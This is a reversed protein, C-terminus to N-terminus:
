FLEDFNILKEDKKESSCLPRHCLYFYYLIYRNSQFGNLQTTSHISLFTPEKM